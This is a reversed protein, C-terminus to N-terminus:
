VIISLLVNLLPVGGFRGGFQEVAREVLMGSSTRAVLVIYPKESIALESTQVESAVPHWDDSRSDYKM